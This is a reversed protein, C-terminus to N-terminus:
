DTSEDDGVAVLEIVTPMLSGDSNTIDLKM